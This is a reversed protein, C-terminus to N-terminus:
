GKAKEMDARRLTVARGETIEAPEENHRIATVRARTLVTVLYAAIREEMTYDKTPTFVDTIWRGVRPKVTFTVTFETQIEPKPELEAEAKLMADVLTGGHEAMIERARSLIIEDKNEPM